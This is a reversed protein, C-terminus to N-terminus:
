IGVNEKLLALKNMLTHVHFRHTIGNDNLYKKFENGTYEGGNDTQLFTKKRNLQNETMSKFMQFYKLVESKQQIPYIRTYRSYVDVFNVYCRFRQPSTHPSPGWVDSFILELIFNMKYDAYNSPICHQFGEFYHTERLM